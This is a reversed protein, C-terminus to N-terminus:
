NVNYSCITSLFYNIYIILNGFNLVNKAYIIKMIMMTDRKAYVNDMLKEMLNNFEINLLIVNLANMLILILKANIM